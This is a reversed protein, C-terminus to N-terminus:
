NHDWSKVVYKFLTARTLSAFVESFRGVVADVEDSGRRGVPLLAEEPAGQKRTNPRKQSIGLLRQLM